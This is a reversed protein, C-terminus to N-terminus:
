EIKFMRCWETEKHTNMMKAGPLQLKVKGPRTKDKPSAIKANKL